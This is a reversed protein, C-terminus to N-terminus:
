PANSKQSPPLSPAHDLAASTQAAKLESAKLQTVLKENRVRVDALEKRADALQTELDTLQHALAEHSAAEIRSLEALQRAMRLVVDHEKETVAGDPQTGLPAPKGAAADTSEGGSKSDVSDPKEGKSGGKGRGKGAGKRWGGGKGRGHGAQQHESPEAM